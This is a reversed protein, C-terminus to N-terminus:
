NGKRIGHLVTKNQERKQTFLFTSMKRFYEPKVLTLSLHFNLKPNAEELFMGGGGGGGRPHNWRM